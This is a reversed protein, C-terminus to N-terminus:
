VPPSRLISTRLLHSLLTNRVEATRAYRVDTLARRDGLIHLSRRARSYATYNERQSAHFSSRHSYKVFVVHDFGNGQCKHVTRCTSPVIHRDGVIAVIQGKVSAEESNVLDVDDDLSQLCEDCRWFRVKYKIPYRDNEKCIITAEDGNKWYATNTNFLVEDGAAFVDDGSPSSSLLAERSVNRIMAAISRCHENIKSIVMPIEGNAAHLDRVVREVDRMLTEDDTSFCCTVYPAAGSQLGDIPDSLSRLCFDSLLSSEARHVKTLATTPVVGSKLMDIFPCGQEIPPLQNADGLLLLSVKTGKIVMSHLSRLLLTFDRLSVMSMEDIVIFLGGPLPPDEEARKSIKSRVHKNSYVLSALTVVGDLNVQLDRTLVKRAAHTPTVGLVEYGATLREAWVSRAIRSTKGCGGPGTVISIPCNLAERVARLQDLDGEFGESCIEGIVGLNQGRLTEIAEKLAVEQEYLERPAIWLDHDPVLLPPLPAESYVGGEESRKLCVLVGKSVLALLPTMPLAIACAGRRGEKLLSTLARIGLFTSGELKLHQNTYHEVLFEMRRDDTGEWWRNKLCLADVKPPSLLSLSEPIESPVNTPNLDLTSSSRDYLWRSSSTGGGEKLCHMRETLCKVWQRGLDRGSVGLGEIWSVTSDIRRWETEDPVVTLLRNLRDCRSRDPLLLTKVRRLIPLHPDEKYRVVDGRGGRRGEATASRRKPAMALDPFYPKKNFILPLETQALFFLSSSVLELVGEDSVINIDVKNNILWTTL